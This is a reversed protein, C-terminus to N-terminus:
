EVLYNLTAFAWRHSGNPKDPDPTVEAALLHQAIESLFGTPEAIINFDPHDALIGGFDVQDDVVIAILVSDGTENAEFAFGYSPDPLVITSGAQILGDRAHAASYENPFIQRLAGDPGQDFLVLYGTEASIIKFSVEQGYAIKEGPLISVEIAFDNDHAFLSSATEAPTEAAAGGEAGSEAGGEAGGEAGSEAGGEAGSEAGGEAGSEAGSAAGEGGSAESGSTGAADAGADAPAGANLGTFLQPALVSTFEQKPAIVEPTLGAGDRCMPEQRCFEDSRKRVFALLEATTVEGDGDFDAGQEKLGEVFALTFVGGGIDSREFALQASTTATWAFLAGGGEVRANADEPVIQLLRSKVKHAALDSAGSVISRTSARVPGLPTLTRARTGGSRGDHSVGASRTITGSFCADVVIWVERGELRDILNGIEDDIVINDLQGDALDGSADHPAIGEDFPDDPEDGSEDVSQFGHGSFYFVVRDGPKSGAVLWDDFSNLINERTADADTLLRIDSADMGWGDTLLGHFREADQVAVELDRNAPIGNETLRPYSNVGVVLARSAADAPAGAFISATATMAVASFLSVPRM